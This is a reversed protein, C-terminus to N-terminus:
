HAQAWAHRSGNLEAEMLRDLSKSLSNLFMRTEECRTQCTLARLDQRFGASWVAHSSPLSDALADLQAVALLVHGLCSDPIAGHAPLRLVKRELDIMTQRIRLMSLSKRKQRKGFVLRRVWGFMLWAAALAPMRDCVRVRERACAAM